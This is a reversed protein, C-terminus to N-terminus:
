GLICDKAGISEEALEGDVFLVESEAQQVPMRFGLARLKGYRDAAITLTEGAEVTAVYTQSCGLQRALESSSMGKSKRWLLLAMGFEPQQTRVRAGPAEAEAAPEAAQGFPVGLAKLANKARVSITAVDGRELQYIYSEAFECAKAITTAYTRSSKRWDHLAKGDAATWEVRDESKISKRTVVPKVPEEPQSAPASGVTDDAFIIGKAKANETLIRINNEHKESGIVSMDVIVEADGNPLPHLATLLLCKGLLTDEVQDRWARVIPSKGNVIIQRFPKMFNEKQM